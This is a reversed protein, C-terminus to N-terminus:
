INALIDKMKKRAFHIDDSEIKRTKKFFGHVIFIQDKYFFYLIRIHVAGVIRLEFLGGGLPKSLPMRVLHRNEELLQITRRL